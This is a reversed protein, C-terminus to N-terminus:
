DDDELELFERSTRTVCRDGDCARARITIRRNGRRDAPRASVSRAWDRTGDDRDVEVVRGAADRGAYTFTVRDANASTEAEVRLRGSFLLDADLDDIFVAAPAQSAAVQPAAPQPAPAQLAATQPAAPQPAAAQPTAVVTRTEVRDRDAIATATVVGVTASAVTAAMLMKTKM